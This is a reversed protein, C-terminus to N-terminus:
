TTPFILRLERQDPDTALRGGHAAMIRSVIALGLGAGNMSAHDARHLRQVLLELREASLGVGGDRVALEGPRDALILVPRDGPTVRLANEILNRLAAAVAERRGPVPAWAEGSLELLKGQALAAPAMQAIVDGAVDSLDVAAPAIHAAEEAEIQALLMLQDILRRMAAVDARLRSATDGEMKDLELSLLTLPTRLEHAIDAAFAEHLAATRDVRDLLNNVARAFPITELPLRDADIRVGRAEGQAADIELAATELPKVGRRIAWRGVIAMPVALILMPVVFHEALEHWILAYMGSDSIDSFSLGYELAIALLLLVAGLLAVATLSRTLRASISDQRKM